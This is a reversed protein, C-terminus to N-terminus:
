PAGREVAPKRRGGRQHQAERMARLELERATPKVAVGRETARLWDDLDPREPPQDRKRDLELARVARNAAGDLRVLALPDVNGDRLADARAKEALATLEAAKRVNMAM